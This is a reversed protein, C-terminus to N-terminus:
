QALLAQYKLFPSLGVPVNVATTPPKCHKVKACYIRDLGHPCAQSILSAFRNLSGFVFFWFSFDSCSYTSLTGQRVLSTYLPKFDGFNGKMMRFVAEIRSVV